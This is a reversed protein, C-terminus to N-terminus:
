GMMKLFELVLFSALLDLITMSGKWVGELVGYFILFGVFGRFDFVDGHAGHTGHPGMPALSVFRNEPAPSLYRPISVPFKVPIM